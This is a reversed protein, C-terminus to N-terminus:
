PFVATAAVPQFTQAAQEIAQAAISQENIFLVSHEDAFVQRWGPALALLNAPPTNRAVLVADPPQRRLIADWDNRGFHFDIYQEYVEPSYVTERRGDMGIQVDPGLHWLLYQGWGFDCMLRGRFGSDRLLTMAQFPVEMAPIFRWNFTLLGIAVIVAALASPIPQLWRPIAMDQSRFPLTQWASEVHKGVFIAFGLGMLPLHRIATLPLILLLGFLGILIPQKPLKSRYLAFLALGAVALYILGFESRLPLPQWDAIEPRDGTATELLFRHLEWGYPNILTALASVAVPPAVERWRGPHFALHAVAWIGLLGCGALFGGHLNVWAAVIFPMFWLWRYHGQEAEDIIILTAAFCLFTFLQPRAPFNFWITTVVVSLWVVTAPVFSMRTVAILRWLVLSLTLTYVSLRLIILGVEGGAIWAAGMLVEMLWEHNIWPYGENLYSYPDSRLLGGSEIADLGYRLHGWLDPDTYSRLSLVFIFAGILALLNKHWVTWPRTSRLDSM